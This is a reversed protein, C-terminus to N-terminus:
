RGAWTSMLGTEVETHCEGIVRFKFSRAGRGPNCIRNQLISQSSLLM